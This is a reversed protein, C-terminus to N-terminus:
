LEKSVRLGIFYIRNAIIFVDSQADLNTNMHSGLLDFLEAKFPSGSTNIILRPSTPNPYVEVLSLSNSLIRTNLYTIVESTNICRKDDTDKVYYEGNENPDM